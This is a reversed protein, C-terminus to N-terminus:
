GRRGHAENGELTRPGTETPSGCRRRKPENSGNETSSVAINGGNDNTEGRRKPGVAPTVLTTCGAMGEV